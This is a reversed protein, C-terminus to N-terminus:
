NQKLQVVMPPEDVLESPGFFQIPGTYIYNDPVVWDGRNMVYYDFAPSCEVDVLCKKIVPKLKNHRVEMNMMSTLPVAGAGWNSPSDGLNHVRAMYGNLKNQALLAGVRGLNYCYQADFNTPFGCRGDYGFFHGHAKFNGNYTGKKKRNKLEAEVCRIILLETPIRSVQVNGHPDRENILERRIEKPLMNFTACHTTGLNQRIYEIKESMDELADIEKLHPSENALLGNLAHILSQLSPIFQLLGEPVLVVGYNKNVNARKEVADAILDTVDSLMLGEAKIEESILAINPQTQLAVELTVHSADRGMLKIFHWAKVASCSDRAINSVMEAYTRTATHFGFSIEIEENQLDGDITKPIGIINTECGQQSFYEGVVCANTNSDDGGIILVGDLNQEMATQMTSKLQNETEIKDRGTGIMDFGGTNRYQDILEGTVIKFNNEILGKPGRLFGILQSEPNMEMLADYLGCIVNHGGSAPGGSLVMGVRIPKYQKPPSRGVSLLKQGFLNVFIQKLEFENAVSSTEYEEVFNITALNQLCEPVIPKYQKRLTFLKSERQSSESVAM